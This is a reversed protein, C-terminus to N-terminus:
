SKRLVQIDIIADAGPDASWECTIQGDEPGVFVGVLATKNAGAVSQFAGGLVDTKLLEAVALVETVAGGASASSKLTQPILTVLHQNGKSGGRTINSGGEFHDAALM